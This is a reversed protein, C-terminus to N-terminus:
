RETSKQLDNRNKIADWGSVLYVIARKEQRKINNFCYSSNFLDNEKMLSQCLISYFFCVCLPFTSNYPFANIPFLHRFSFTLQFEFILPNLPLTYVPVPDVRCNIRTSSTTKRPIFSRIDKNKTLKYDTNPPSTNNTSSKCLAYLSKITKRSSGWRPM